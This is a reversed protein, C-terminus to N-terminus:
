EQLPSDDGYYRLLIERFRRTARLAKFSPDVRIDQRFEIHHLTDLQRMGELAKELYALAQEEHGMEAHVKARHLDAYPDGPDIRAMEDLVALAEDFRHQHALNVALNNMATFDNPELALAVRYLAEEKAYEGLRKYVLAKNNYGAADDPYLEIFRDYTDIADDFDAALYQYYSLISLAGPDDPDIKLRGRAARIMYQIELQEVAADQDDYWDQVGWGEKEEAPLDLAEEDPVDEPDVDIEAVGDQKDQEEPVDKEPVPEGVDKAFLPNVEDKKAAPVPIEDSDPARVPDRSTDAAGGMETIPGKNGAPLYMKEVKDVVKEREHELQGDDEGDYDERLLRALYEASLAGGAGDNQQEEPLCYAFSSQLVAEGSRYEAGSLTYVLPVLFALGAGVWSPLDRWAQRVLIAGALALAVTPGVVWLLPELVDPVTPLVQVAWPCHNEPNQWWGGQMSAVTAMLVVTFWALSAQLSWGQARRIAYQEALYLRLTVPGAEIVVEDDPELVHQRGLGDEVVVRTPTTFLARAMWPMGAPVPVALVPSNGIQVRRDSPDVRAEVVQGHFSASVFLAYRPAAM